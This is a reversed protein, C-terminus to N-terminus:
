ASACQEKAVSITPARAIEDILKVAKTVPKQARESMFNEKALTEFRQMWFMWRDTSFGPEGDWFETKKSLGRSWGSEFSENSVSQLRSSAHIIWYVAAEIDTSLSEEASTISHALLTNAHIILTTELADRIDFFAQIGCERMFMEDGHQVLKASFSTFNIWRDAGTLNDPSLDSKSSDLTRWTYYFSHADGWSSWLFQTLKNLGEPSAEVQRIALIFQVLVDVHDPLSAAAHFLLNWFRWAGDQTSNRLDVSGVLREAAHEASIKRHFLADLTNTHVPSAAWQGTNESEFWANLSLSM